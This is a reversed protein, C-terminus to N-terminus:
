ASHELGVQKLSAKLREETFAPLTRLGSAQLMALSGNLEAFALAFPVTLGWRVPQGARNKGDWPSLKGVFGKKTLWSRLRENAKGDTPESQREHRKRCRASCFRSTRLSRYTAACQTCTRERGAPRVALNAATAVAHNMPQREEPPPPPSQGPIPAAAPELGTYSAVTM